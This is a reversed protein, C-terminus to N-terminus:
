YRQKPCYLGIISVIVILIVAMGKIVKHVKM